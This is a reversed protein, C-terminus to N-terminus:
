GATVLKRGQSSPVPVAHGQEAARSPSWPDTWPEGGPSREWAPLEWMRPHQLGLSGQTNTWVLAREERPSRGALEGQDGRIRM